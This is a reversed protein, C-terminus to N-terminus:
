LYTGSSVEWREGVAALVDDVQAYVEAISMESPGAGNLWIGRRFVNREGYGGCDEWMCWTKSKSM